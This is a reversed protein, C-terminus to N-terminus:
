PRTGKWIFFPWTMSWGVSKIIEKVSERSGGKASELSFFFASLAVYLATVFGLVFMFM